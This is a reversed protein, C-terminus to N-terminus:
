GVCNCHLNLNENFQMLFLKQRWFCSEITEEQNVIEPFDQVFDSCDFSHERYSVQLLYDVSELYLLPFWSTIWHVAKVFARVMWVPIWVYFWM